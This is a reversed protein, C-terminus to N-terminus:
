KDVLISALMSWIAVQTGYWAKWCEKQSHKHLTDYSIGNPINTPIDSVFVQRGVNLLKSYNLPWSEKWCEKWQMVCMSNHEGVNWHVAHHALENWCAICCAHCAHVHGQCEIWCEGLSHHGRRREKRGDGTLMCFEHVHHVICVNSYKNKRRVLMRVPYSPGILIGALMSTWMCEFFAPWCTLHLSMSNLMRVPAHQVWWSADWTYSHQATYYFLWCEHWCVKKLISFPRVQQNCCTPCCTQM